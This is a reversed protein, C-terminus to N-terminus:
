TCFSKIMIARGKLIQMIKEIEEIAFEAAFKM